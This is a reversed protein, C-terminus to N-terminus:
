FVYFLYLASTHQFSPYRLINSLYPMESIFKISSDRLLSTHEQISLISLSIRWLLRYYLM